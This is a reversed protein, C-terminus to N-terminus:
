PKWTITKVAINAHKVVTPMPDNVLESIQIILLKIIYKNKFKFFFVKEIHKLLEKRGEPAESLCTM